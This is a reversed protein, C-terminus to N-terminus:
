AQMCPRDPHKRSLLWIYSLACDSHNHASVNGLQPWQFLKRWEFTQCFQLFHSDHDVKNSQQPIIYWDRLTVYADGSSLYSLAYVSHSHASVNGLTSWKIQLQKSHIRVNELAQCWKACQSHGEIHPAFHMSVLFFFCLCKVIHQVSM